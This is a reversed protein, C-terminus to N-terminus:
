RLARVQKNACDIELVQARSWERFYAEGAGIVAPVNLEAARIAMHSNVGGFMTIFGAIGQAFIWDFGPDASPILLIKGKIGERGADTFAVEGTARGLTIFNPESYPLHFAFVDDPSTILPPLNIRQTIAYGAEGATVSRLLVERAGASSAYLDKICAIDAFSCQEITLGHERGLEGFDVLVDSLSKTFVFKAYERGEIAGKIFDFLGLVDHELGHEVLLAETRRFQDLSLAFPVPSQSAHMVRREWDFYLEPREDYRPSLIDYTGPRLHGYRQLFAARDLDNFDRTMRSSVTELSAMFRQYEDTSLIGVAVLSKLLQVAIFGARALGAFPLTGYRKCDEILWYIKSVRDLDSGLIVARRSELERIKEVDKRWLGREGHIIGNTLRRLSRAFGDIEARTFGAKELVGLRTPLDMTYCSFIIEFEVKDHYNPSHVLRDIYYNALKEALAPEVDAPIFSNFSVRVDIYPLGAFSVLLPFSRLNRYGYNDRQYAWINDTVLEKYLSLALPRPRVGVIEAPNWDPMVGFVSRTGHLYPHPRMMARVRSHIQELAIRHQESDAPPTVAAALLRAQLLFLEGEATCAFEVDIANSGLLAELERVLEFVGELSQPVKGPSHKCCYLTKVQNTEGSTVTTTSGSSDDYNVVIYPGANNPDISFAVGSLVVNGLMPQVFLQDRGDRMGYSAIVRSVAAKLADRGRVDGVSLFQGALSTGAADEVLASSRVILAKDLWGRASIRALVGVEDRQWTEVTFREQPLVLASRVLPALRELTESKTSFLESM